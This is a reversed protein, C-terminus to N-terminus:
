STPKRAVLVYAWCTLEDRSYLGLEAEIAPTLLHEGERLACYSKQLEFHRGFEAVYQHMRWENLPVHFRLRRRRLHDRLSSAQRSRECRCSPM